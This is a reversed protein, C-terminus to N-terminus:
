EAILIKQCYNRGRYTLMLYYMGPVIAHGDKVDWELAVSTGNTFESKSWILNGNLSRVSAHLWKEVPDKGGSAFDIFLRNHRGGRFVTPYVRFVPEPNSAMTLILEGSRESLVASTDLRVYGPRSLSLEVESIIFDTVYATGSSDAKLTWSTNGDSVSVTVSPVPEDEQNRVIVKLTCPALIKWYPTSDVVVTRTRDGIHVYLEAPVGNILRASLIGRSDTTGVTDHHSTCVHVGEMPGGAGNRMVLFLEDEHRMCSRLVDPIGRGYANRSAEGSVSPRCFRYLRERVQGADLGSSSQKVLACAGAIFPTAFSTGSGRAAYAADNVDYVDPLFVGGGPAVLDPKPTGDAAPGLSSFPSLRGDRGVSGVSIVEEVDAPASLSTDGWAQENGAANVIIVGREAAHRAARSVITTNGDLDAKTYDVLTDSTGDENSIIVTDSFGTSYGLSSSIIDAGSEEAWVVAEAWNDEETHVEVDIRETRAFLFKAGWAAGTFYPPDYAAVLSLVQTGHEDNGGLPHSYDSVVSDPDWVTTDRDVFDYADVIAGRTHLHRFCRHDFRFGSDFFAILIGEGPDAEPFFTKLYTHAPPISLMSLFDDIAGYIGAPENKMDKKKAVTDGRRSRYNGVLRMERVFPLRRVGAVMRAPLEFSAANEWKFRSRLVGGAMKIGDIYDDSVPLDAETGQYGARRRRHLARDTVPKEMGSNTKDTYYVWVKLLTSSREQDVHVTRAASIGQM